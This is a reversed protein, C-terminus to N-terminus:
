ANEFHGAGMVPVNYYVVLGMPVAFNFEFKFKSVLTLTM